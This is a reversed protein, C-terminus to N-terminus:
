LEAVVGRAGQTHHPISASQAGSVAVCCLHVVTQVLTKYSTLKLLPFIQATSFSFRPSPSKEWHFVKVNLLRGWM